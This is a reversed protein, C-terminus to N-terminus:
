QEVIQKEIKSVKNLLLAIAELQTYVKEGEVIRSETATAVEGISFRDKEKVTEEQKEEPEM